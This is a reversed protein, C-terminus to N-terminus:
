YYCIQRMVQAPADPFRGMVPPEVASLLQRVPTDKARVVLRLRCDYHQRMPVPTKSTISWGSAGRYDCRKAATFTLSGADDELHLTGGDAGETRSLFIYEWKVARSGFHLVDALPQGAVAHKLMDSTLRLTVACLGQGIPRVNATKEMLGSGEAAKTKKGELPLHLAYAASPVFDTWVTYYPFSRDTLGLTLELQDAATDPENLFYLGWENVDLQRFIMGRRRLLQQAQPTLACSLATCRGGAFYDHEIRFSYLLTYKEM